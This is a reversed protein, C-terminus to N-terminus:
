WMMAAKVKQTSSEVAQMGKNATDRAQKIKERNAEVKAVAESVAKKTLGAAVALDWSQDHLRDVEDYLGCLLSDAIPCSSLM